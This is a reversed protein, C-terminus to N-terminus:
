NGYQVGHNKNTEREERMKKIGSIKVEETSDLDVTNEMEQELEKKLEEVSKSITSGEQRFEEPNKKVSEIIPDYTEVSRSEFEISQGITSPPPTDGTKSINEKSMKGVSEAIKGKETSTEEKESEEVSKQVKSKEEEALIRDVEEQLKSLEELEERKRQEIEKRHEEKYKKEWEYYKKRGEKTEFKFKEQMEDMLKSEKEDQEIKSDIWKQFKVKGEETKGLVRNLTRARNSDNGVFLDNIPPIDYNQIFTETLEKIKKTFEEYSDFEIRWATRESGKIEEDDYRSIGVSNLLENLRDEYKNPFLGVHISYRDDQEHDFHIGLNCEKDSLFEQLDLIYAINNDEPIKEKGELIDNIRGFVEYLDEKSTGYGTGLSFKTSDIKDMGMINGGFSLYLGARTDKIVNLLQRLKENNRNPNFDIYGGPGVHSGFTEINNRNFNKLLKYLVEDGMSWGIFAEDKEEESLSEIDVSKSNNWKDVFEELKQSFLIEREEETLDDINVSRRIVKELYKYLESEKNIKM